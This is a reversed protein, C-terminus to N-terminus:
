PNVENAKALAAEITAALGPAKAIVDGPNAEAESDCAIVAGYNLNIRWTYTYDLNASRTNDEALWAELRALADPQNKVAMEEEYAQKDIRLQDVIVEFAGAIGEETLPEQISQPEAQEAPSASFGDGCGNSIGLPFLTQPDNSADPQQECKTCALSTRASDEHACYECDRTTSTPTQPMTPDPKPAGEQALLENRRKRIKAERDRRGKNCKTRM